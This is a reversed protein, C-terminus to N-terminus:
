VVDDSITSADDGGGGDGGKMQGSRLNLRIYYLFTSWHRQISDYM